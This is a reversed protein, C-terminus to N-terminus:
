KVVHFAPHACWAAMAPADLHVHDEVRVCRGAGELHGLLDATPPTQFEVFMWGETREAVRRALRGLLPRAALDGVFVHLGIDCRMARGAAREVLEVEAPDTEHDPRDLSYGYPLGDASYWSRPDAAYRSLGEAAMEAVVIPEVHEAPYPTLVTLATGGM